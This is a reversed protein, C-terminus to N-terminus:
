INYLSPSIEGSISLRFPAKSTGICRVSDRFSVTPRITLSFLDEQEPILTGVGSEVVGEGALSGLLERGGALPWAGTFTVKCLSLVLLRSEPHLSSCLSANLRNM